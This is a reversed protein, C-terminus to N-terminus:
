ANVVVSQVPLSSGLRGGVYLAAAEDEPVDEDGPSNEDRHNKEDGNDNETESDDEDEFGHEGISETEEGQVTDLLYGDEDRDFYGFLKKRDM